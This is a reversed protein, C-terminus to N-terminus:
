ESSSKDYGERMIEQDVDRLLRQIDIWIILENVDKDKIRVKKRIIGVISNRERNVTGAMTDIDNRSYTSVSLVDDVMIGIKSQTIRDDLVIIRSAAEEVKSRENIHLQHKLDIITTIEGRLDIIGRIYEPTDPLHTIRTYEVVERVEFLDIAFHEEGLLFEVVQISDKIGAGTESTQFRTGLDKMEGPTKSPNVPISPHIAISGSPPVQIDGNTSM